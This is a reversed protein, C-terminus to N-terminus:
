SQPEEYEPDLLIDRLMWRAKKVIASDGSETAKELRDRWHPIATARWQDLLPNEEPVERDPLSEWLFHRVTAVQEIVCYESRSCLWTELCVISVGPSVPIKPRGLHNWIFILDAADQLPWTWTGSDGSALISLLEDKQQSIAHRLEPTLGKKPGRYHLKGAEVALFGGCRGVEALIDSLNM